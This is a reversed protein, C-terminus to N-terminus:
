RLTGVTLPPALPGISSDSNAQALMLMTDLMRLGSM